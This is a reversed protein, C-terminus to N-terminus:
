GGTTLQRWEDLVDQVTQAFPIEPEWGTDRRLKEASGYIIPVDAPRYREPDVEVRIPVTALATLQEVLSRITRPTGSAINYVEGPVGRTLALHYARVVDRVDTFDRAPELNGVYMVPTQKGAEIGAVQKAFAPLVFRASQGPGVHNFPRMRIVPLHYSIFYQYGMVDQTVKSVSYPNEPRLPHNETLPLDTAAARGYEEGSGIVLMRPAIKLAVCGELLNLQGRINNELTSWPDQYSTPIHSQAALHIIYEPPSQGLLAYTAEVDRLDLFRLTERQPDFPAPPMDPYSTGIIDWDTHALFYRRLHNGVFGTAGTILIRM